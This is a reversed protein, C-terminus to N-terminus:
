SYSVRLTAKGRSDIDCRRKRKRENIGRHKCSGPPATQSGTPPARAGRASSKSDRASHVPWRLLLVRRQAVYQPCPHQWWRERGTRTTVTNHSHQTTNDQSQTTNHQTTKNCTSSPRIQAWVCRWEVGSWEVGVGGAMAQRLYGSSASRSIWSAETLESASVSVSHIAFLTAVAISANEDWVTCNRASLNRPTSVLRCLM